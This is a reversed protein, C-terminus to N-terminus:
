SNTFETNSEAMVGAGRPALPYLVLAAELLLWEGKVSSSTNDLKLLTTVTKGDDANHLQTYKHM